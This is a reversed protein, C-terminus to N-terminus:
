AACRRAAQAARRQPPQTNALAEQFAKQFEQEGIQVPELFSEKGSLAFGRVGTEMNILAERMRTLATIVRHSRDVEEDAEAMLSLNYSTVTIVVAIMAAVACFSTILKSKVSLSM